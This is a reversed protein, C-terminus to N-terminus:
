SRATAVAGSEIGFIRWVEGAPLILVAAAGVVAAVDLSILMVRLLIRRLNM